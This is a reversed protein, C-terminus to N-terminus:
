THLTERRYHTGQHAERIAQCAVTQSFFYQGHENVLWGQGGLDRNFGWKQAKDLEEKTYVPFYNSLDPRKPILLLQGTVPELVARKATADAKSNGKIVETNGKQHGRWHIVVVKKLLQVAELLRLINLGHKVQKKEATLM